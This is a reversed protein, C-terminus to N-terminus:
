LSAKVDRRPIIGTSILCLSSYHRGSSVITKM